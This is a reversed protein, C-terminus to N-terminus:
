RMLHSLYPGSCLKQSGSFPKLESTSLSYQSVAAGECSRSVYFLPTSLILTGLLILLPIM